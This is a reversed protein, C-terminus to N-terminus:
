RHLLNVSKDILILMDKLEQLTFKEKYNSLMSSFVSYFEKKPSYGKYQELIYKNIKYDHRFLKWLFDYEDYDLNKRKFFIEDIQKILDDKLLDETNIYEEVESTIIDPILIIKRIKDRMNTLKELKKNSQENQEKIEDLKEDQKEGNENQKKIELMIKKRESGLKRNQETIWRNKDKLQSIMRRTKPNDGYTELIKKREELIAIEQNKLLKLEENYKQLQKTLESDDTKDYLKALKRYKNKLNERLKNIQSDILSLIKILIDKCVGYIKRANRIQESHGIDWCEKQVCKITHSLRLDYCGHYANYKKILEDIYNELEDLSLNELDKIECKSEVSCLKKYDKYIQRCELSKTICKKKPSTKFEM